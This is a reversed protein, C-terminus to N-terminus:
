RSDSSPRGKPSNAGPPKRLGQAKPPAKKPGTGKIVIVNARSRKNQLAMAVGKDPFPAVPM